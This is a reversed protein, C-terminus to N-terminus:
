SRKGTFIRLHYKGHIIHMKRYQEHSLVGLAPHSVMRGRLPLAVKEFTDVARALREIAEQADPTEDPLIAKPAPRGRPIFPFTFFIRKMIPQVWRPVMAPGMDGGPCSQEITKALHDCLQALTWNGSHSTVQDQESLRRVSGILEQLLQM